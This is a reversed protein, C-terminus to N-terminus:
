YSLSLQLYTGYMSNPSNADKACALSVAILDANSTSIIFDVGRQWFLNPGQLNLREGSSKLYGMLKQICLYFNIKLNLSLYYFIIQIWFFYYCFIKFAIVRLFYFNIIQSLKVLNLASRSIDFVGYNSQVLVAIGELRSSEGSLNMTFGVLELLATLLGGYMSYPSKAEKPDANPSSMLVLRCGKTLIIKVVSTLGGTREKIDWSILILKKFEYISTADCNFPLQYKGNTDGNM